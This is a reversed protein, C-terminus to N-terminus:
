SSVSAFKSLPERLALAANGVIVDGHAVILNAPNWSLIHSAAQHLSLKDTFVTKGLRTMALKKYGGNLRAVAADVLRDFRHYNFLLDTVVATKSAHHFFIFEDIMPPKAHVSIMEIEAEWPMTEQASLTGRFHVDRRKDHLCHPGWVQANPCAQAFNKLFLHHMCNPAIVFRVPGLAQLQSFDEASTRVPSIVMLDGNRLRIVTARVSMKMGLPFKVDSEISWVDEAIKVLM